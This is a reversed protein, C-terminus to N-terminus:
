MRGRVLELIEAELQQAIDRYEQARDSTSDSKSWHTLARYAENYDACLSRFEEDRECMSVIQQWHSPFRRILTREHRM